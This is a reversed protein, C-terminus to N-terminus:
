SLEVRSCPPSKENVQMLRCHQLPITRLCKGTKKGDLAEVGTVRM